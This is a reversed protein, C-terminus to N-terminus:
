TKCRCRFAIGASADGRFHAGSNHLKRKGRLVGNYREPQLDFLFYRTIDHTAVSLPFHIYCFSILFTLPFTLVVSSRLPLFFVFLDFVYSLELKKKREKPFFHSIHCLYILSCIFHLPLFPTLLFLHLRFLRCFV